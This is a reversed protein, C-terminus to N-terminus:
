VMFRNLKSYLSIKLQTIRNRSLNMSTLLDQNIVNQYTYITLLDGERETLTEKFSEFIQEVQNCKEIRKKVIDIRIIWDYM